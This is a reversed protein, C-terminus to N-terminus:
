SLRGTFPDRVLCGYAAGNSTRKAIRGTLVENSEGSTTNLVGTNIQAIETNVLILNSRIQNYQQSWKKEDDNRRTDVNKQAEGLLENLVDRKVYLFLLRENPESQYKSYIADIRKALFPSRGIEPQTVLINSVPPTLSTGDVSMPFTDLPLAQSGLDGIMEIRFPGLPVGIVEVNGAGINALDQLSTSVVDKDVNYALPDTDLGNFNITITGGNTSRPLDFQYVANKGGDGAERLATLKIEAANM